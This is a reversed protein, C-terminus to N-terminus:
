IVKSNELWLNVFRVEALGPIKIRVLSFLMDTSYETDNRSIRRGSPATVEVIIDNSRQGILFETNRGISSDIVIKEEYSDSGKITFSESLLMIPRNRIEILTLIITYLMVIFTYGQLNNQM